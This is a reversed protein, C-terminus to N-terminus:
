NGCTTIPPYAGWCPSAIPQGSGMYYTFAYYWCDSNCNNLINYTCKQSWGQLEESAACLCNSGQSCDGYLDHTLEKKSNMTSQSVNSKYGFTVEISNSPSMVGRGVVCYDETVHDDMFVGRAFGDYEVTSSITQNDSTYCAVRHYAIGLFLNDGYYRMTGAQATEAVGLLITSVGFLVVFSRTM